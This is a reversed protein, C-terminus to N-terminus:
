SGSSEFLQRLGQWAFFILTVLLGTNVLLGNRLRDGIWSTRNNMFLLTTALFPMFLAGLVAYALQVGRFSLTLLPLPLLALAIQFGRYARTQRPDTLGEQARPSLQRRKLM